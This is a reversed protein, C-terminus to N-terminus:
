GMKIMALLSTKGMGVDALVFLVQRGDKIPTSHSYFKSLFTFAPERFGYDPDDEDHHDAPNYPQCDPEIYYGALERPSVNLRNALIDLNKEKEEKKKGVHKILDGLWQASLKFAVTEVGM